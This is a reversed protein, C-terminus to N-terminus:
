KVERLAMAHIAQALNKKFELNLYIYVKDGSENMRFGLLIGREFFEFLTDFDWVLSDLPIGLVGDRNFFMFGRVFAKIDLDTLGYEVLYINVAYGGPKEASTISYSICM